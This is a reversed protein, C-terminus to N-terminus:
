KEKGEELWDECGLGTQRMTLGLKVDRLDKFSVAVISARVKDGVKLTQNTQSGQIVGTKSFSVRDAMTQTLHVLGDIVGLNVFVGFNTVSAVIGKVVEHNEPRFTLLTFEVVYYRSPDEPLKFGKGVFDVNIVSIVLGFEETTRDTYNRVIQERVASNLDKYFLDPNLGVYDRLKTEYFM